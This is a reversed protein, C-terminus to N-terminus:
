GGGTLKVATLVLVAIGSLAIIGGSIRNLWPLGRTIFRNRLTTVIVALILWWAASGLFVGSVLWFASVPATYIDVPGFAAFVGAAAIMTAPNTIAMTFAAAFDRRLSKVIMTGDNMMVPSFYTTVGLALVLAGGIVGIVMQNDLVFTSLVTLGLGAIAGFIMDAVAAGLGALFAQVQGRTLARRICLVAVPGIPVALAFGVIIGRVFALDFFAPLVIGPTM